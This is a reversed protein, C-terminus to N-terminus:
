GPDRPAWPGAAEEAAAPTKRRDPTPGAPRPDRATSVKRASESGRDPSVDVVIVTINDSGGADNAAEILRRVLEGPEVPLRVLMGLEEESIMGTLGDSSVVFRDGPSLSGDYLDIEVSEETGLARTLLSSRPHLRAQEDSLRGRDVLQQVYTHDETLRSVEGDRLLYARSDGVHGIVYFGEPLLILATATTGMGARAPNDRSDSIIARNVRTLTGRLLERADGVSRSRGSEGAGNSFHAVVMSSAVEGAAHGGMGDAVVFVGSEADTFHADENQERVRGVDTGAAHRWSLRAVSESGATSPATDDDSDLPGEEPLKPRATRRAVAHSRDPTLYM